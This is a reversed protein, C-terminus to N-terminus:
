ARCLCSGDCHPGGRRVHGCTEVNMPKSWPCWHPQRSHAEEGVGAAAPYRVECSALYTEPLNPNRGRFDQPLDKPLFCHTRQSEGWVEASARLAGRVGAHSRSRTVESSSFAGTSRAVIDPHVATPVLSVLRVTHWICCPAQSALRQARELASSVVSKWARPRSPAARSAQVHWPHFCAMSWNRASSVLM